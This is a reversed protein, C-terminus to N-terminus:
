RPLYVFNSKHQPKPNHNKLMILDNKKCVSLSPPFIESFFYDYFYLTYQRYTIQAFSIDYVSQFHHLVSSFTM